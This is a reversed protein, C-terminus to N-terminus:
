DLRRETTEIKERVAANDQLKNSHRYAALADKYRSMAAYADGLHELIVADEGVKAVARELEKAAARYDGKKYLVWGLSDIYFGNEPEKALAQRVLTEALELDKGMEALLYGYFNCVAADDPNNKHLRALISEAREFERSKEEVTALNFLVARDDPQLADARQLHSRACEL